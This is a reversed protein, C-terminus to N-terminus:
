ENTPQAQRTKTREKALDAQYRAIHGRLEGCRARWQDRQQELKRARVQLNRLQRSLDDAVQRERATLLNRLGQLM